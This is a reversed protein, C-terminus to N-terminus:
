NKMLGDKANMNQMVAYFKYSLRSVTVFNELTVQFLIGSIMILPQSAHILLTKFATRFKKCGQYWKTHFINMSFKEAAIMIENGYYCPIFIQLGMPIMYTIQRFFVSAGDAPSFMSITYCTTCIVATSIVVQIFIIPSVLNQASILFKKIKTHILICKNLEDITTGEHIKVTVEERIETEIFEIRAALEELLGAGISFFFVALFDMAVASTSAFQASINAYIETIVFYFYNEEFNFFPPSYIKYQTMFPASQADKMAMIFALTISTPCTSWYIVFVKRINKMRKKIFDGFNIQYESAFILLERLGSVVEVITGFNFIVYYSKAAIGVYTLQM